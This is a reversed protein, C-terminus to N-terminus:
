IHFFLVWACFHGTVTNLASLAKSLLAAGQSGWLYRMPLM